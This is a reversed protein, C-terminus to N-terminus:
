IPTPSPTMIPTPTAVPTPSPTVVPTPSSTVVPTATPALTPALTPAGEPALQLSAFFQDKLIVFDDYDDKNYEEDEMDITFNVEYIKSYLRFVYYEDILITKLADDIISVKIKVAPLGDLMVDEVVPVVLPGSFEKLNDLIDNVSADVNVDYDVDDAYISAYCRNDMNIPNGLYMYSSYTYKEAFMGVPITYRLDAQAAKGGFVLPGFNSGSTTKTNTISTLIKSVKANMSTNGKAQCVDIQYAVSQKVAVLKKVSATYSSEGPALLGNISTAKYEYTKKVGPFKGIKTSNLGIIKGGSEDLAKKDLSKLTEKQIFSDSMGTGSYDVYRFFISARKGVGSVKPSRIYYYSALYTSMYAGAQWDSPIKMTYGDMKMTGYQTKPIESKKPSKKVIFSMTSSYASITYKFKYTGDSVYKKKANKGDWSYMAMDENTKTIKTIAVVLKNKSDYVGVKPSYYDSYDITWFSVKKTGGYQFIDKTVSLITPYYHITNARVTAPAIVILSTIFVIALLLSMSKKMKKM